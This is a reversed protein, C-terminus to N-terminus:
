KVLIENLRKIRVWIRQFWPRRLLKIIKESSTEMRSLTEARLSDREPIEGALCIAELAEDGDDEADGLWILVYRARAYIEAMFPIQREKEKEDAQNICIADVWIIRVWDRARLHSLMTHLNRTINLSRNDLLISFAGSEGGWVYSLAEYPLYPRAANQLDYEFLECPLNELDSKSPLLRLLRISTPQSLKSYIYEPM